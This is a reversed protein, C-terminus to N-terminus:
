IWAMSALKRIAESVQRGVEVLTVHIRHLQELRERGLLPNALAESGCPRWDRGPFPEARHDLVLGMMSPLDVHHEAHQSDLCRRDISEGFLLHVRARDSHTSPATRQWSALTSGALFGAVITVVFRTVWRMDLRVSFTSGVPRTGTGRELRTGTAGPADPSQAAIDQSRSPAAPFRGRADLRLWAPWM